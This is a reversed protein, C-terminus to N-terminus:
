FLQDERQPALDCVDGLRIFGGSLLRCVVGARRRLASQAGPGLERDMIRCPAAIRVVELDIDGIRLREGPATPIPGASITVNRRTRLASVPRGLALTARDLDDAAQVTVHRHRTGFFRDGVLGRGEIAEVRDRPEM